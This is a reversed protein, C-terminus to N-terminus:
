RIGEVCEQVIDTALEFMNNWAQLCFVGARQDGIKADRLLKGKRGVGKFAQFEGEHIIANRLQRADALWSEKARDIKSELSTKTLPNIQEASQLFQCFDGFNGTKSALIHLGFRGLPDMVAQLRILFHELEHKLPLDKFRAELPGRTGSSELATRATVMRLRAFFQRQSYRLAYLQALLNEFRNVAELTWSEVDDVVEPLSFNEEFWTALNEIEQDLQSPHRFTVSFVADDPLSVDHHRGFLDVAEVELNLDKWQDPPVTIPADVPICCYQSERGSGCPCQWEAPYLNPDM